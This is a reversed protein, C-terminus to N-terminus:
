GAKRGLTYGWRIDERYTGAPEYSLLATKLDAEFSDTKNGLLQGSCVSTSYLYGLITEITWEHPEVFPHSAVEAFGAERLVRENHDPGGGPKRRQSDRSIPSNPSTWRNVTEVVIRQWPGEGSLISYSGLTAVCCGPKLWRLSLLAVLQQDLRHFEEGITILEFSAPSAELDEARGVM